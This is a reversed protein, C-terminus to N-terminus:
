LVPNLAQANAGAVSAGNARLDRLLSWARESGAAELGLLLEVATGSQAPDPLNVKDKFAPGALDSWDHPRPTGSQSNWAIALASLGQAVYGPGRYQAPVKAASPSEYPLLLDRAALDLASDWSASIVVDA